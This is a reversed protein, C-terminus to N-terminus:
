AAAALILERDVELLLAHVVAEPEAVV